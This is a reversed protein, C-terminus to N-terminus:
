QNISQLVQFFKHFDMRPAKPGYIKATEKDSYSFQTIKADLLDQHNRSINVLELRIKKTDTGRWIAKDIKSEWRYSDLGLAKHIDPNESFFSWLQDIILALENLM